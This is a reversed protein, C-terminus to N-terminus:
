MLLLLSAALFHLTNILLLDKRALLSFRPILSDRGRQRQSRPLEGLFTGMRKEAQKELFLSAQHDTKICGTGCFKLSAPTMEESFRPPPQNLLLGHQGLSSPPGASRLLHPESEAKTEVVKVVELVIKPNPNLLAMM